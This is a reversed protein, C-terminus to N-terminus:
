ENEKGVGERAYLEGIDQMLGIKNCYRRWSKKRNALDRKGERVKRRGKGGERGKRRGKGGERGKRRGKGGERGNERGIV